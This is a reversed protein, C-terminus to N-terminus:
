GSGCGGPIDLTSLSSLATYTMPQDKRYFCKSSAGAVRSPPAKSILRVLLFHGYPSKCLDLLSRTVEDWICELQEPTGFKVVAQVVRSGTHSMSVAAM